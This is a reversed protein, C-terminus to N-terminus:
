NAPLAQQSANAQGVVGFIHRHGERLVNTLAEFDRARGSRRRWALCISRSPRPESFPVAVIGTMALTSPLAIEPLLTVGMGHEVMQLLTTLSTAGFSAMAVPKVQGCAALAQDRLCHGEELLMLRELAPNDPAVPSGVTDIESRPAALLFPDRFIPQHALGRGELPEAAVFGDIRGALTEEILVNTVAERVQLQLHQFQERLLPLVKPLLYPAVTPIVGLVLRGELARREKRAASELDRVDSLIREVKPHIDQAEPTPRVGNAGREFLRLELQQELEAIQASLAPQTVGVIEAARRFHLTQMVADFYEMQRLTIRM